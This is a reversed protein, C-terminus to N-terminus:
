EKQEFANFRISVKTGQGVQSEIEISGGHEDVIRKTVALGLGTGKGPEKTTFFPTFLKGMHEQLIGEGTDEVEAVVKTTEQDSTQKRTYVRLEGGNPMAHFSNVIINLFVQYLLAPDGYVMPLEASMQKSIRIEGRNFQIHVFDLVEQIVANIDIAQLSVLKPRAFDLLQRMLRTMRKTQSIIVSLEQYGKDLEKMDLLMYEANGSIINLPTGIEHAIGAALQGITALKETQIIQQELNKRDSIDSEIGMYGIKTGDLYIPTISLWVPIETGDKRKNIIEGHWQGREVLEAWMQQYFEKTSHKSQIVSTSREISEDRTYGYIRTFANNVDLIKGDIGTIVIADTSHEFASKFLQLRKELLKENTVDKNIGVVGSFRGNIDFLPYWSKLLYAVEGDRKIIRHVISEVSERSNFLSDFEKQVEARDDPHVIDLPHLKGSLFEESHYGTISAANESTYYVRGVTDYQFILDNGALVIPPRSSAASTRGKRQLRFLLGAFRGDHPLTIPKGVLAADSDRYHLRIKKLRELTSFPPPNRFVEDLSKGVIRKRTLDTFRPTTALIKGTRDIVFGRSGESNMLTLLSKVGKHNRKPTM